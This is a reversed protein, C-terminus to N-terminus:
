AGKNTKTRDETEHSCYDGSGKPRTPFTARDSEGFVTATETGTKIASKAGKEIRELLANNEESAERLEEQLGELRTISSQNINRFENLRDHFNKATKQYRTSLSEKEDQLVAFALLDNQVLAQSEQEAIDILSRTQQCLKHMVQQPSQTQSQQQAQNM